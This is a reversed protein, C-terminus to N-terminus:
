QAVGADDEEPDTIPTLWDRCVGPQEAAPEVAGCATARSCRCVSTDLKGHRWLVGPCNRKTCAVDDCPEHCVTSDQLAGTTTCSCHIPVACALLGVPAKITTRLFRAVDQSCYEFVRQDFVHADLASLGSQVEGSALMNNLEAPLCVAVHGDYNDGTDESLGVTCRCDCTVSTAAKSSKPCLQADSECTNSPKDSPFSCSAVVVALVTASCEIWHTRM